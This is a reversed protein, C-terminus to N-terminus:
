SPALQLAGQAARSNRWDGLFLLIPAAIFVSSSAAIIIGFVMPIAFSAVASGGWIAMPLMAVLATVSTYLSRGLTENISRDIIERLTLSKMLRMNERMRDYVVVKDNVSYGILTLLAAIATLNFELGTLAFFGVTKTVDLVLTAIAGVAFPWEFRAWIYALMALSAFIVALIGTTALEGSVRPGVADGHIKAAPDLKVIEARLQRVAAQTDPQSEVRVILSGDGSQQLKIEGLKLADLKGRVAVVDLPKQTSVDLQIGGKFDVGYNLGPTVFLALSALSLFASFALGMFRARMFPIATGDPILKLRFMPEIELTKMKRRRVIEAMVVRVVTVATFMSIAIGLGMTVAFGRVPGTGFMFLLATAILATLNSDVITSFARKFGADLAAIASMGKRTEERIRENILVNADVALGIGLIIGAIGPLTLTAGLLTLAAFTLIVNLGLALNAVLGWRRYLLCLFAVVLAFGIAGTLLGREIADKGEDPGVTRQEVVKLPAPLAGARLMASLDSASKTTFSGSIQGSGGIIPSQIVPATLVEDDMLIAFPRGVNAKTIAAFMRSGTADFRFTVVPEGTTGDVGPRADALHEGSLMPRTEIPVRETSGRLKAWSYGPPLAEAPGAMSVNHFTLKATSGFVTALDTQENIGPLQVIIRDKGVRAVSAEALGLEDIRKRVIELSQEAALSTLTNIGTETYALRLETPAITKQDLDGAESSLRALAAAAADRQDAARLTVVTTNGDLRISAPRIDADALTARAQRMLDLSRAAVLAKTDLELAIHAGGRLDLGLTVQDKPLWDPTAALQAPTLVNPLATLAGLLVILAYAIMRWASTRM